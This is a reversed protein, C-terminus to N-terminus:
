NREGSFVRTPFQGTVVAPHKMGVPSVVEDRQSGNQPLAFPSAATCLGQPALIILFVTQQKCHDPPMFGKPDAGEWGPCPINIRM